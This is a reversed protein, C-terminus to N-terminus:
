HRGGRAGDGDVGDAGDQWTGVSVIAGGSGFGRWIAVIVVVVSHAERGVGSDLQFVARDLGHGVDLQAVADQNMVASEGRDEHEGVFQGVDAVVKDVNLGGRSVGEGEGRTMVEVDVATEGGGRGNAGAVGEHQSVARKSMNGVNGCERRGTQEVRLSKMAINNDISKLCTGVGSGDLRTQSM